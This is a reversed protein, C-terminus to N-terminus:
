VSPDRTRRRLATRDLLEGSSSVQREASRIGGRSKSDVFTASLIRRTSSCSHSGSTKRVTCREISLGCSRSALGDFVMEDDDFTTLVIVRCSPQEEYLRRTASVGDLIPM